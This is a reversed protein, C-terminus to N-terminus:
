QAQTWSRSERRSVQHGHHQIHVPFPARRMCPDHDREMSQLLSCPTNIDVLPCHRTLFNLCFRGAPHLVARRVVEVYVDDPNKRKNM